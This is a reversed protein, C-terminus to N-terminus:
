VHTPKKLIAANSRWGSRRSIHFGHWGRTPNKERLDAHRRQDYDAQEVGSTLGRVPRANRLDHSTCNQSRQEPQSVILQFACRRDDQGVAFRGVTTLSEAAAAPRSGSAAGIAPRPNLAM